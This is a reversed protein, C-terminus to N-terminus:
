ESWLKEPSGAMLDHATQRVMSEYDAESVAQEELASTGQVLRVIWRAKEEAASEKFTLADQEAHLSFRMGLARTVAQVNKFSANEAQGDLMHKVTPESVGSRAALARLSMRLAKRRDNLSAMHKDAM